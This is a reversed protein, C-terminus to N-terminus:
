DRWGRGRPIRGRREEKSWYDQGGAVKGFQEYWKGPARGFTVSWPSVLFSIILLTLCWRNYNSAKSGIGLWYWASVLRIEYFVLWFEQIYPCWYAYKEVSISELTCVRFFFIRLELIGRSRKSVRSPNNYPPTKRKRKKFEIKHCIACFCDDILDMQLHRCKWLQLTCKTVHSLRDRWAVNTVDSEEDM